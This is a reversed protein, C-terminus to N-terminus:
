VVEQELHPTVRLFNPHRGLGPLIATESSQRPEIPSDTALLPCASSVCDTLSPWLVQPYSSQLQGPHLNQPFVQVKAPYQFLYM